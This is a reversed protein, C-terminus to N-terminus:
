LWQQRQCPDLRYPCRLPCRQQCCAPPCSWVVPWPWTEHQYNWSQTPAHIVCVLCNFDSYVSKFSWVWVSNNEGMQWWTTSSFQPAKSPQKVQLRCTKNVGDQHWSSITYSGFELYKKIINWTNPVVNFCSFEPTLDISFAATDVSLNM